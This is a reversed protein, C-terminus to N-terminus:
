FFDSYVPSAVAIAIIKRYGNDRLTKAASALTAGTTIVDDVIVIHASREPGNSALGFAGEVNRQRQQRSLRTQTQTHRKRKLALSLQGGYDAQLGSAILEAQNYGRQFQKKRHLPVPVFVPQCPLREAMEKALLQGLYFGLPRMHQYKVAAFVSQLIADYYYAIHVPTAADLLSQSHYIADYDPPTAQLSSRCDDCLGPKGTFTARRCYICTQPLLLQQLIRLVSM